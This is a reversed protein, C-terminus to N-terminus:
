EQQLFSLLNSSVYYLVFSCIPDVSWPLTSGCYDDGGCGCDDGGNNYYNDYDNAGIDKDDNVLCYDDGGYGDDDVGHVDDVNDVDGDGSDNNIKIKTASTLKKVQKTLQEECLKYLTYFKASLLVNNIFGCAALKVRIIIQRDPVMM